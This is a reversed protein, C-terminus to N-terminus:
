VLAHWHRSCKEYYNVWCDNHMFTMIISLRDKLLRTMVYICLEGMHGRDGWSMPGMDGRDGSDGWRGYRM